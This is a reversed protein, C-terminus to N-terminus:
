KNLHKLKEKIKVRKLLNSRLINEEKEASTYNDLRAKLELEKMKVFDNFDVKTNIWIEYTYEEDWIQAFYGSKVPGYVWLSEKNKDGIYKMFGGSYKDFGKSLIYEDTLKANKGADTSSLITEYLSKM